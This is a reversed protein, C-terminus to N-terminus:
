GAELSTAEVIKQFENLLQAYNKSLFRVVRANDLLNGVYNKCFVLNLVNTSYNDTVLTFDKELGEMEREMKAIDEASVGDAEKPKEPNVLQDESTALYIAQAYSSTYMGSAVMLEAMEIQRLPKVRKFFKLAAASIARDKLLTVAEDCIGSLLNRKEKVKEIDVRFSKAMREEPVGNDLAKLIMFHEQITIVRSLILNYTYAEDDTSILCYTETIGLDQLALMRLHGDLLTYRANKTRRPGQPYVTLPEIIGLEEISAVMRKYKVQSKVKPPLTKSPDINDFPIILGALDFAIKVKEPM